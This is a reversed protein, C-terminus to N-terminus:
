GMHRIWGNSVVVAVDWAFCCAPVCSLWPLCIALAICCMVTIHSCTALHPCLTLLDPTRNQSRTVHLFAPYTRMEDQRYWGLLLPYRTSRFICFITTVPELQFFFLESKEGSSILGYLTNWYWPQSLNYVCQGALNGLISPADPLTESCWM